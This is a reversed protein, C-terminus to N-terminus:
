KQGPESKCPSTTSEFVRSFPRSKDNGSFTFSRKIMTFLHTSHYHLRSSSNIFSRNILIYPETYRPSTVAAPKFWGAYFQKWISYRQMRNDEPKDGYRRDGPAAKNARELGSRAHKILWGNRLGRYWLEVRERRKRGIKRRIKGRNGSVFITPPSPRIRTNRNASKTDTYIASMTIARRRIM